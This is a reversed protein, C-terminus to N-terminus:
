RAGEEADIQNLYPLLEACVDDLVGAESNVFAQAKHAIAQAKEPSSLFEELAEHLADGDVVKRSAGQEELRETMEQFNWMYPGYLIASGLQAAELPNQGGKDVFSKGMFVLPCLRFFLGMEGMTDAVYIDTEAAIPDSASRLAVVAGLARLDQAIAPGRNPHRPVLITLLRPHAPKLQQHVRWLIQEEGSHTSAGVWRPRGDLQDGLRDLEGEDVPLPKVAFKLNGVCRVVPAGLKRLREADTDTQGLCLSFGSLLKGILGPFRSWGEFSKPSIRGNILILPIGRKKPECILNPWFDSESWLVLDPRWHDFFRSVYNPRDVPVFQHIVGPPLRDAMLIASTVTGTTILYTFHPHDNQLREILPLLSLGEGVSAAHLWVLTGTPRAIGSIALREKFRANDEKGRVKRRHLYLSILPAGVTGLFRYLPLMM